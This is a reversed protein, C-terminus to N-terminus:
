PKAELELTHQFGLYMKAPNDNGFLLEGGLEADVRDAGAAGGGASM